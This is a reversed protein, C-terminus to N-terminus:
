FLQDRNYPVAVEGGKLREIVELDSSCWRAGCRYKGYRYIWNMESAPALVHLHLHDVSNFPPIHFCLIYDKEELSEPQYKQLLDLGMDRMDQVLKADNYTLSYVNQIYRKPIVLAHLKAKPSRDQFALLETSESYTRCPLEGNLIKGFVSPNDSYDSSISGPPPEHYICTAPPQSNDIINDNDSPNNNNNLFQFCSFGMTMCTTSHLFHARSTIIFPIRM